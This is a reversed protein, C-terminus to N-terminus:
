DGRTLSKLTAGRHPVCIDQERLTVCVQAVRYEHEPDEDIEVLDGVRVASVVVTGLLDCPALVWLTSEFPKEGEQLFTPTLVM